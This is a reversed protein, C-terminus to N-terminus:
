SWRGVCRPACEVYMLYWATETPPVRVKEGTLRDLRWTVMREGKACLRKRPCHAEAERQRKREDAEIQAVVM